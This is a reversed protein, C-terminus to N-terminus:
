PKSSFSRARTYSFESSIKNAYKIVIKAVEPITEPKFDLITDGVNIAAVVKGDYNYVPAAVSVINDENEMNNVSYGLRRIEQINEYLKDKDTITYDTRPYLVAKDLWSRLEEDTMAALFVKGNSTAHLYTREGVNVAIKIRKDHSEDYKAICVSYNGDMIYFYPIKGSEAALAPLYKDALAKMDPDPFRSFLSSFKYNLRYTGNETPALYGAYDLTCLIRFVTSKNIGAAAALDRLQIGKPYRALVEIVELAREVSTINYNMAESEMANGRDDFLNHKIM